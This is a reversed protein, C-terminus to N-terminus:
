ESRDLSDAVSCIGFRYKAREENLARALLAVLTLKGVVHTESVLTSLTTEVFVFPLLCLLLAHISPLNHVRELSTATVSTNGLFRCSYNYFKVTFGRRGPVLAFQFFNDSLLVTFLVLTLRTGLDALVEELSNLLADVPPEPSDLSTM